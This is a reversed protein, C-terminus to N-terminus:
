EWEMTAPPKNTIDYVVRSVNPVENVIRTAINALVQYPLRTWEATMRDTSNVVRVAVVDGFFRGDGKVATSQANTLISWSQFVDDFLDAKQLEEVVIADAAVQKALREATVEGLIRVAHGPGPFPQQFVLNKPINLKLGLQRVQETYLHRIPELLTLKMDKPLGGVNHHSKILATHKGGRSEVVDAYTTGQLLFKVSGAHKKMEAEFLEIYLGGIIKRKQEPDTIGRLRELFTTQAEIVIPELQWLQALDQEVRSRTGARMLGSEIYVPLFQKGIARAVLTGAVTSDTGGSIAGIVLDDGVVDRINELISDVKIDTAQPCEGCLHCAFNKLLLSGLQTHSVEPHFQLGYLKKESNVVAAFPLIDTKAIAVFSVPLTSVSDGHSQVVTLQQPTGLFLNSHDIIMLSTQGYEKTVPEVKGGLLQAMLQWGYCIGLVPLGMAFICPDITPANTEYVSAPGGSLIIGTTEALEPLQPSFQEPAILHSSIGLDALRRSILHTTQSGFDIILIM